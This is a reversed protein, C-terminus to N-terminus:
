SCDVSIKNYLDRVEKKLQELSGSNNILEDALARKRNLPIQSRIRRLAEKKSIKDRKTLLRIQKKLPLWVVVTKDVMQSLKAEFLLPIDAVILGNRTGAIKAKMQRLVEPHIIKELQKRKAPNNFIIEAIKKRLLKRNPQVVENGFLQVIKKYAPKEPQVVERAIKDCDITKAGLRRFESLASSKGSAIGGTLGVVIKKRM